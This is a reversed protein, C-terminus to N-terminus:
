RLHEWIKLVEDLSRRHSREQVAGSGRHLRLIIVPVQEGMAFLAALESDVAELDVRERDSLWGQDHELLGFLTLPTVPHVALGLSTAELWLRQLARGGLLRDVPRDTGVALMVLATTASVARSQVAALRGGLDNRALFSAVAPRAVLSLMEPGGPELGLSEVAIGDDGPHATDGSWRLEGVFERHLNPNLMRIRDSRGVMDAFREIRPGDEVVRLWVGHVAAADHLVSRERDTLAPAVAGVSRDTCRRSLLRFLRVFGAAPAGDRGFTVLAALDPDAADPFWCFNAPRGCSGSAIAVNECAAGIATWASAFAPDIGADARGRDLRVRLHRGDWEFRWPQANGGSPATTAATVVREIFPLLVPRRAISGRRAGGDHPATTAVRHVTSPPCPGSALAGDIDLHYRGSPCPQGLVIRRVAVAAHAGGAMVDGALQPWSSVTRDLEIMSAASRDSLHEPGIIKLALAARDAPSISSLDASELEAASGHFLPRRPELDFREVDLLGRESTAMVVPLGRRRAEKRILVKSAFSDCEEVVVDVGDLFRDINSADVVGHVAEVARFPDIEWVMRAALAVKPVGLDWLSARLRNCNSGDLVDPDALRLVGGTGELALVQIVSAGVSLGAVAVTAADLRGQEASTVKYRNRDSRLVRWLVGPLTRVLRGTWPYFVWCSAQSSAVEPGALGPSRFERPPAAGDREWIKTLEDLQRPLVDITRTVRGSGRLRRLAVRDSRRAMDFITPEEDWRGHGVPPLSRTTLTLAPATPM